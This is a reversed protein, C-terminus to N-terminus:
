SHLFHVKPNKKVEPTMGSFFDIEPEAEPEPPKNGRYTTKANPDMPHRPHGQDELGWNDWSELEIQFVDLDIILVSFSIGPINFRVGLFLIIPM